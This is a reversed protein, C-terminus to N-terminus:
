MGGVEVGEVLIHSEVLVWSVVMLTEVQNLQENQHEAEELSATREEGYGARHLTQGLYEMQYGMRHPHCVIEQSIRDELRGAM